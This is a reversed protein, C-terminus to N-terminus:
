KLYMKKMALEVIKKKQGRLEKGSMYEMFCEPFLEVPRTTAYDSVFSAMDKFSKFGLEKMMENAIREATANTMKSGFKTVKHGIEHMIVDRDITNRYAKNIYIVNGQVIAGERNATMRKEMQGQAYKVISIEDDINTVLNNINKIDAFAEDVTDRLKTSSIGSTDVTSSKKRMTGVESAMTKVASKKMAESTEELIVEKDIKPALTKHRLESLKGDKFVTSSKSADDLVNVDFTLQNNKNLRVGTIRFTANRGILFEAEDPRGSLNHIFAGNNFGAPVHIELNVDRYFGRHTNWSTSIFAKDSYTKGNLLDSLRKLDDKSFDSQSSIWDITDRDLLDRFADANVGRIVTFPEDVVYSSTIKDLDNIIKQNSATIKPTNGRLYGNIKEYEYEKGKISGAYISASKREDKSIGNEWDSIKNNITKRSDSTYRIPEVVDDIIPEEVKPKPKVEPKSEVKPESKPKPKSEIKKGTLKEYEAKTMIDKSAYCRCNIDHGAVGSQGPTKAKVGGGLDFEEDVLVIQGEMKMHNPGTLSSRLGATHTKRPKVGAKRKYAKRQPRVREDKMTRWIKVMVVDSDNDKLIQNIEEASDQYGMERVRHTETRVIRTAKRYDMDVQESIRRAMTSMRDGQSLGIGIQQKIDYIVEKRNKELTDNLTLGSIPNEVARKIVEAKTGKLGKLNLKLSEIETSKEVARIMGEYAAKYTLQVTDRIEKAAKPTFTNIRREVEELFRAYQGKSQLIEYTLKDDQALNAYEVGLFERLDTMLEKYYRKVNQECWKERHEEILRLQRLYHELTKQTAVIM